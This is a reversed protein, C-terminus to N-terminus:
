QLTVDAPLGPRLAASDDLRAEVLFVLKERSGASYIVPPTFEAESAIFSVTAETQGAGDVAVNVRDGVSVAHLSSQPIFFRAKLSSDPLLAIVPASAPVFEGERHFVHDVQGAVMATVTRQDL